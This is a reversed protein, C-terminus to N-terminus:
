KFSYHEKHSSDPMRGGFWFDYGFFAGNPGSIALCRSKLASANPRLVAPRMLRFPGTEEDTVHMSHGKRGRLLLLTFGDAGVKPVGSAKAVLSEM